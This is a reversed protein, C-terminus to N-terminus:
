LLSFHGLARGGAAEEKPPSKATPSAKHPLGGGCRADEPRSSSSPTNFGTPVRPANIKRTDELLLRKQLTKVIVALSGM